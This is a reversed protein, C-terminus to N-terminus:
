ERNLANKLWNKSFQRWDEAISNIRQWDIKAGLLRKYEEASLKYDVWKSEIGFKHLLEKQRENQNTGVPCNQWISLFQKKYQIALVSGHYSNTIFYKADDLARLFQRPSYLVQYKKPIILEAGQIGVFKLECGLMEALREYEAIRLDDDSRINVLYCFLTPKKFIPKKSQIDRFEDLTLLQVPDAVHQVDINTPVLNKIAAVGRMERIGIATFRGLEQRIFEQWPVSEHCKDWDTSAAYTILSGGRMVRSLRQSETATFLVQDGGLIGLTSGSWLQKENTVGILYRYDRWFRWVLKNRFRMKEVICECNPIQRVRWFYPRILNLVRQYIMQWLGCYEVEAAARFPLFGYQKLVKRLAYHQFFSGYNMLLYCDISVTSIAVTKM